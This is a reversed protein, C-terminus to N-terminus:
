YQKQEDTPRKRYAPGSYKVKSKKYKFSYKFHVGKYYLDNKKYVTVKNLKVTVKVKVGKIKKTVTFSKKGGIHKSFKFSGELRGNYDGNKDIETHFIYVKGKIQGHKYKTIRVSGEDYAGTPRVWTGKYGGKVPANPDGGGAYVQSDNGSALPMMCIFLIASLLVAILRNIRKVRM